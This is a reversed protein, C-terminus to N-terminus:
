LNLQFVIKKLQGPFSFVVMSIVNSRVRIRRECLDLVHQAKIAGLVATKDRRFYYANM